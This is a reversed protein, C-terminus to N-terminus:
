RQSAALHHVAVDNQSLAGTVYDVEEAGHRVVSLSLQDVIHQKGVSVSSLVDGHGLSPLVFRGGHTIIPLVLEPEDEISATLSPSVSHSAGAAVSLM